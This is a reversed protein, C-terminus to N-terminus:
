IFSASASAIHSHTGINSFSLSLTHAHKHTQTHSLSLFHTPSSSTPPFPLCPVKLCVAIPMRLSFYCYFFVCRDRERVCMYVVCLRLWQLWNWWHKVLAKKNSLAERLKEKSVNQDQIKKAYFYQCLLHACFTSSISGQLRLITLHLLLIMAISTSSDVKASMAAKYKKEAKITWDRM